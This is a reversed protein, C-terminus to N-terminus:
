SSSYQTLWSPAKAAPPVPLRRLFSWSTTQWGSSRSMRPSTQCHAPWRTRRAGFKTANERLEDAIWFAFPHPHQVLFNEPADRPQAPAHLRDLRRRTVLGPRMSAPLHASTFCRSGRHRTYVWSATTAGTLYLALRTGDPSWLPTDDKGRDFFLRQPKGADSERPLARDLDAADKVYALQGKSSMRPQRGRRGAAAHRLTQSPSPGSRSRRRPHITIPIRRSIARPLGIRTTIEVACTSCSRHTPPFPSSPLSRDM